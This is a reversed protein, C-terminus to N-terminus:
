STPGVLFQFADDQFSPYRGSFLQVFPVQRFGEADAPGRNPFGDVTQFFLSQHFNKGLPAGKNHLKGFFVDKFKKKDAFIQFAQCRAQNRLSYGFGAQYPQFGADSAELFGETLFVYLAIGPLVEFKVLADNRERIGPPEDLQDVAKM